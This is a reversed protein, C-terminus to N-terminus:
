VVLFVCYDTMHSDSYMRLAKSYKGQLRQTQVKMSHNNMNSNIFGALIDSEGIQQYTQYLQQKVPKNGVSSNSNQSNM